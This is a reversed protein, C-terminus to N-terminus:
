LRRKKPPRCGNFAIATKDLISILNLGATKLTKISTERGNGRGNIIIKINSISLDKLKAAVLNTTHQAAYPTNKRAGKFGSTGSSAGFIKNGLLDTVTIIINNFTSKINIIATQLTKKALKLM